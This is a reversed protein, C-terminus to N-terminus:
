KGKIKITKIFNELENEDLINYSNGVNEKIFSYSVNNSTTKDIKLKTCSSHVQSVGTYSLFERINKSNLGSGCLIEIKNKYNENLKRILNKGDFAKNKLGSTLLRDVNLDILKKIEKDPDNVNDFARHFVAKKDFEHCKDVFYKSAKTDITFDENLFGFAVAEIKTTLLFELEDKLEDIEEKTYNFGAARNRCMAVIPIKLKTTCNELVKKYPTLGGLALASNLEIRDAGFDQALKASHYNEVCIEVLM